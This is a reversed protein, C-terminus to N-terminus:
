HSRAKKVTKMLAVPEPGRKLVRAAFILFLIFLLPYLFSFVALSAGVTGAPIASASKDTRLLNYLLWPQRGIERALWGMEMALYSLPIAAIWSALLYRQKSIRDPELRGTRWALATWLMLAFLLGGILIMIRFSYFPVWIPPQNERPFERMGVVQGDLSNTAIISLANPIDIEWDNQQKEENPWALIKWPAGRGPPNTAWHAEMAALKAPQHLYVAKGSGDGLLIQLPTVVISALFAMKFSITFFSVERGKRIYWASIGGLVFISIEVAAVWMHSVGWPMDPNFVADFSSTIVFKMDKFYGGTPTHMWSNAVMIWFASLSGGLAVMLTSFFHMRPGVRNWGLMMIGFFTAELMFAMAAEFGLMHGFFDGGALSFTGWNTGFQFELPIGTVVGVTFNLLFIKSWFRCHRYYTENGTKLWLAEMVVLFLSLGITLVPWLIHFTATVGFQIRSLMVSDSLFDM